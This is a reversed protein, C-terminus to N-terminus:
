SAVGAGNQGVRAVFAKVRESDIPSGTEGNRKFWSGVIFADADPMLTELQDPTAGSGVVVPTPGAVAKVRALEQPDTQTETVCGSIIVADAGGRQILEIVEQEITPESAIPTSHKVHIDAFIAISDAGLRQRERLLEHANGHVLGQDTVRAGILINVRVFDAGAAHAVGLSALSDNCLVNIGLPLKFEERVEEALIAMDAVVHPPVPGPHFPADGYNELMLGHVGGACLAAADHM